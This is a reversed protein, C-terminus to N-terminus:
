LKVEPNPDLSTNFILKMIITFFAYTHTKVFQVCRVMQCCELIKGRLSAQKKQYLLSLFFLCFQKVSNM